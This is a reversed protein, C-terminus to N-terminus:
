VHARGIKRDNVFDLTQQGTNVGIIETNEITSIIETIFDINTQIDDVILVLAKEQTIM